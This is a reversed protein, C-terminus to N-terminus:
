ELCFFILFKFNFFVLSKLPALFFSELRGARENQGGKVQVLRHIYTRIYWERIQNTPQLFWNEAKGGPPGACNMLM